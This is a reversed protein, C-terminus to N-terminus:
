RRRLREQSNWLLLAAQVADSVQGPDPPTRLLEHGGHRILEDQLNADAIASLLIIVPKSETAGLRSVLDQWGPVSSRELLVVGVRYLGAHVLATAPDRLCILDWGDKRSRGQLAVATEDDLGVALAHPRANGNGSM